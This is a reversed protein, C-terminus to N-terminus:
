SKESHKIFNEQSAMQGPSKNKIMTQIETSTISRSMNETEEQNLRPLNYTELFKCIEQMYDTKNIYLQKYNGRIINKIEMTDIM